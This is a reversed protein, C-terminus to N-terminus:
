DLFPKHALERAWRLQTKLQEMGMKEFDVGFANLKIGYYELFRKFLENYGKDYPSTKNQNFRAWVDSPKEKERTILLNRDNDFIKEAEKRLWYKEIDSLNKVEFRIELQKIATRILQDIKESKEKDMKELLSAVTKVMSKEENQNFEEKM